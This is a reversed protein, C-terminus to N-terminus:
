QADSWANYIACLREVGDVVRPGPILFESSPVNHIQHERQAKLQSFSPLMLYDYLEDGDAMRKTLLIIDPNLSILAEPSIQSVRPGV